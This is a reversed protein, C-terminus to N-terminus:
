NPLLTDIFLATLNGNSQGATVRVPDGKAPKFEVGGLAGMETDVVTDSAIQFSEAEGSQNTISLLHDRKSFSVVKGASTTFPGLGINRLAVATRLNGVGIYFVIAHEGVIKSEDAPAADARFNKDLIVKGHSNLLERFTLESGTDTTLGITKAASDVSTITAALAHIVDQAAAAFSALLLCGALFCIRFLGRSMFGRKLGGSGIGTM